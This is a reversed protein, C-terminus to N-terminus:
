PDTLEEVESRPLIEYEGELIIVSWAGPIEYHPRALAEVAHRDYEGETARALKRWCGILTDSTGVVEGAPDVIVLRKM